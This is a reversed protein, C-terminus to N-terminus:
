RSLVLPEQVRDLPSFKQGIASVVASASLTINKV